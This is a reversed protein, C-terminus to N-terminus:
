ASVEVPPHEDPANVSRSILALFLLIVVMNSIQFAVSAALTDPYQELIGGQVIVMMVIAGNRWSTIASMTIRDPLGGGDAAGMFYGIALWAVVFLTTAALNWFGFNLMTQFDKLVILVIAVNLLVGALKTLPDTILNGLRVWWQRIALGIALPVLISSVVVRAVDMAGIDVGIGSFFVAVVFPEAVVSALVVTIMASIADVRSAGAQAAIPPVMASGAAGAMLVIAIQLDISIDAGLAELGYLLAATSIIVFVIASLLTIVLRKPRTWLSFAEKFTTGLGMTFLLLVITFSILSDVLPAILENLEAM